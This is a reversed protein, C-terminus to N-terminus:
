VPFFEREIERLLVGDGAFGVEGKLEPFWTAHRSRVSPGRCNLVRLAAKGVVEVAVAINPAEGRLSMNVDCAVTSAEDELASTEEDIGVVIEWSLTSHFRGVAASGYESAGRGGRGTSATGDVNDVVDVSPCDVEPDVDVEDDKPVSSVPELTLACMKECFMPNSSPACSPVKPDDGPLDKSVESTVPSPFGKPISVEVICTPSTERYVEPQPGHLTKCVYTCSFSRTLKPKRTICRRRDNHQMEEKTEIKTEKRIRECMSGMDANVQRDIKINAKGNM